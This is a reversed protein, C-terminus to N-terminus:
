GGAAPLVLGAQEIAERMTRETATAYFELMVKASHGTIARAHPIPIGEDLLRTAVYRRFGHPTWREVGARKCARDLYRGLYRDFTKITVPWVHAEPLGVGLGRVLLLTGASVPVTRPGTKGDLTVLRRDFDFSGWTLAAAEGIRAGTEALLVIAPRVWAPGHDLEALVAAVEAREPTKKERLPKVTVSPAVLPRDAVEKRERAWTWACKIKSLDLSISGSSYREGATACYRRLTETSLRDVNVSGIVRVVRRAATRDSKFTHPKAERERAALWCEMLDRVTKIEGSPGGREEAPVRDEGTAVLGAVHREADRKTAWGTWVKIGHKSDTGVFREARWYWLGGDKPGRVARLRVEGVGFPKPRKM